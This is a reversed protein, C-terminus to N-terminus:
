RGLYDQPKHDGMLSTVDALYRPAGNVVVKGEIVVDLCDGIFSVLDICIGKNVSVQM